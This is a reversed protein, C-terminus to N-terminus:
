LNRKLVCIIYKVLGTKYIEFGYLEWGDKGHENLMNEIDDASNFYENLVKYEFKRIENTIVTTSIPTEIVHEKKKRGPKKKAIPESEKIEAKTEIPEVKINTSEKSNSTINKQENIIPVQVVTEEKIFEKQKDAPAPKLKFVNSCTVYDIVHEDDVYWVKYKPPNSTLIESDDFYFKQSSLDTKDFGIYIM